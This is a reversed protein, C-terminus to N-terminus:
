STIKQVIKDLKEQVSNEEAELQILDKVYKIDAKEVGAIITRLLKKQESTKLYQAIITLILTVIVGITEPTVICETSALM